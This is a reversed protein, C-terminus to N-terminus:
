IVRFILIEYTRMKVVHTINISSTTISKCSPLESLHYRTYFFPAYQDPDWWLSVYIRSVVLIWLYICYWTFYACHIFRQVPLWPSIHVGALMLFRVYQVQGVCPVKHIGYRLFYGPVISVCCDGLLNWSPQRHNQPLINPLIDHGVGWLLVPICTCLWWLSPLFVTCQFIVWTPIHIYTYICQYWAGFVM